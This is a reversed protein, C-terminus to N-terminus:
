AITGVTAVLSFVFVPGPKREESANCRITDLTVPLGCAPPRNISFGDLEAFLRIKEPLDVCGVFVTGAGSRMTTYSYLVGTKSLPLPAVALSM